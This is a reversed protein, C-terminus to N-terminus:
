NGTWGQITFSKQNDAATAGWGSLAQDEYDFPSKSPSDDCNAYSMIVRTRAAHQDDKPFDIYGSWGGNKVCNNMLINSLQLLDLTTTTATPGDALNHNCWWLATNQRCGLRHCQAPPISWSGNFKGFMELYEELVPSHIPKTQTRVKCRLDELINFGERERSGEPSSRLSPFIADDYFSAGLGVKGQVPEATMQWMMYDLDELPEELQARNSDSWRFQISPQAHREMRRYGKPAMTNYYGDATTSSTVNVTFTPPKTTTSRATGNYYGDATTSSTVSVTVTSPKTTTTSRANGIVTSPKTTTTARANGIATSSPRVSATVKKVKQVPDVVAVTAISARPVNAEITVLVLSTIPHIRTIVSTSIITTTLTIENGFCSSSTNTSPDQAM